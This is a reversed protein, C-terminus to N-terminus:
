QGGWRPLETFEWMGWGLYLVVPIIVGLALLFWLNDMLRQPLPPERGDERHSSEPETAVVVGKLQHAAIIAGPLPRTLSKGSLALL